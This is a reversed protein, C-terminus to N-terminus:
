GRRKQARDVDPRLRQEHLIGSFAPVEDGFPLTREPISRRSLGQGRISMEPPRSRDPAPLSSGPKTSRRAKDMHRVSPGDLEERDARRVAEVMEAHERCAIRLAQTEAVGCARM